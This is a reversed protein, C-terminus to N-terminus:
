ILKTERKKELVGSEGWGITFYSCFIVRRHVMDHSKLQCWTLLLLPMVSFIISNLWKNGNCLGRTSSWGQQLLQVLPQTSKGSMNVKGKNFGNIRWDQLIKVTTTGTPLLRSTTKELLTQVETHKLQHGQTMMCLSTLWGASFVSDAAMENKMWERSDWLWLHGVASFSFGQDAAWVKKWVWMGICCRCYTSSVGGM